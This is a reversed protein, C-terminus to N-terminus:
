AQENKLEENHMILWNIMHQESKWCEPNALGKNAAEITEALTISSDPNDIEELLYGEEILALTQKSLM